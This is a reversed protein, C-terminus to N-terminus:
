LPQRKPTSARGFQGILRVQELMGYNERVTLAGYPHFLQVRDHLPHPVPQKMQTRVSQGRKVAKLMRAAHNALRFLQQRFLQTRQGGKYGVLGKRRQLSSKDMSEAPNFLPHRRNGNLPPFNDFNLPIQLLMQVGNRMKGFHGFHHM